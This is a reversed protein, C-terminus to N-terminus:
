ARRAALSFTADYPGQPTLAVGDHEVWAHADLRGDDLRTGIKFETAIGRRALWYALALSRSLCNGAYPSWAAARQLARQADRAAAPADPHRHGPAAVLRLTRELGLVRVACAAAPILAALALTARREDRPLARWRRWPARPLGLAPM